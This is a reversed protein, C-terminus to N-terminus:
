DRVGVFHTVVKDHGCHICVWPEQYANSGSSLSEQYEYDHGFCDDETM